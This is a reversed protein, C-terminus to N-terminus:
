KAIYLLPFLFIWVIDVMHWYMGALEVRHLDQGKRAGRMVVFLIIMGAIVHLGHLGTMLYYFSWFTSGIGDGQEVLGPSTLTFGHSIETTYEISKVVLFGLGCVITLTMWTVIKNVNKAIAAEHAKVAFLSSTLLILTNVAGWMTSTNAAQEGWEPFRVRYLVYCAILGGFIVLEGAILIWMGLRGQPVYEIASLEMTNANSM